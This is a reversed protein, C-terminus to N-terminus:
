DDMCYHLLVADTPKVTVHAVDFRNPGFDPALKVPLSIPQLASLQGLRRIETEIIQLRKILSSLGMPQINPTVSPSDTELRKRKATVHEVNTSFLPDDREYSGGWQKVAVEIHKRVDSIKAETPVTLSVIFTLRRNKM